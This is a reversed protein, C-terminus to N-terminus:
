MICCPAGPSNTESGGLGDSSDSLDFLGKQPVTKKSQQTANLGILSLGFVYYAILTAAWLKIRLVDTMWARRNDNPLGRVKFDAGTFLDNVFGMDFLSPHPALELNM